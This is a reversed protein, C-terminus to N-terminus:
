PKRAVVLTVLFATLYTRYQKADVQWTLDCLLLVSFQQITNYRSIASGYRCIISIYGVDNIFMTHANSYM